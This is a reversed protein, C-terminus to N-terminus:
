WTSLLFRQRNNLVFDHVNDIILSIFKKEYFFYCFLESFQSLSENEFLAFQSCISQYHHELWGILSCSLKNGLLDVFYSKWNCRDHFYWSPKEGTEMKSSEKGSTLFTHDLIAAGMLSLLYTLPVFSNFVANKEHSYQMNNVRPSWWFMILHLHM